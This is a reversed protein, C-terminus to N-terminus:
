SAGASTTAPMSEFPKVRGELYGRAVMAMSQHVIMEQSSLPSQRYGPGSVGRQVAECAAWDQRNTIDWFDSAYSPSFDRRERAEPPFFWACEVRTMGHSLPDLRHVM